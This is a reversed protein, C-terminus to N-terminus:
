EGRVRRSNKESFRQLTPGSLDAAGAANGSLSWISLCACTSPPDQQGGRCVRFMQRKAIEHCNM